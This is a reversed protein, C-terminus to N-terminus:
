VDKEGTEIIRVGLQGGVNVLEGMAFCRGQCRLYVRTNDIPDQLEIVEGAVLALAQGITMAPGDVEFKVRVRLGSYDSHLAEKKENLTLSQILEDSRLDKEEM